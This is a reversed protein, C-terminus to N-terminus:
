DSTAMTMVAFATPLFDIVVSLSILAFLLPATYRSLLLLNKLLLLTVVEFPPSFVPFPLLVLVM